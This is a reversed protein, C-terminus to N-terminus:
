YIEISKIMKLYMPEGYTWLSDASCFIFIYGGNKDIILDYCHDLYSSLMSTRKYTYEILYGKLTGTEIKSSAIQNFLLLEKNIEEEWNFLDNLSPLPNNFRFVNIYAKPNSTTIINLLYKDEKDSQNIEKVTWAQPISMTFKGGENEYLTFNDIKGIRYKGYENFYKMVSLVIFFIFIGTLGFILIKTKKNM